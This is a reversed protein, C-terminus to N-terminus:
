RSQRNLDASNLFRGGWKSKEVKNIEQHVGGLDGSKRFATDTEVVDVRKGFEEINSRIGAIDSAVSKKLEDVDNTLGKVLEVLSELAKVTETATETLTTVSKALTDSDPTSEDVAKEVVVEEVVPAEAEAPAEDASKEVVEEAAADTAADTQEDAAKEVTEEVTEAADNLIGVDDGEKEINDAVETAESEQGSNEYKAIMAKVVNGKDADGSEVFGINTMSSKCVPCSQSARDSIVVPDSPSCWYVNELHNKELVKDGLKQISVFNSDWNAPNDVVSLENLRYAKIVTVPAEATKSYVTEKDVVAGGISFGRLVGENIKYWTDQAGKSIYVDVFIGNVMGGTEKSFLTDRRASVIKGVSLPTHMERVNGIFENFAQESAAIDVIDGHKDITDTTAWGSVIRREQDIKQIPMSLHIDSGSINWYAKDFSTM